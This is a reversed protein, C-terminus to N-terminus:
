AIREPVEIAVGEHRAGDGNELRCSSLHRGIYQVTDEGVSSSRELVVGPVCREVLGDGFLSSTENIDVFGNVLLDSEARGNDFQVVCRVEVTRLDDCDLIQTVFGQSIGQRVDRYSCSLGLLVSRDKEVKCGYGQAGVISGDPEALGVDNYGGFSCGLEGGSESWRGVNTGVLEGEVRSVDM